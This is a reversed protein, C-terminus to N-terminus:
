VHTKLTKVDWLKVMVLGQKGVSALKFNVAPEGCIVV